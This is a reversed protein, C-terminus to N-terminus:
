HTSTLYKDIKSVLDNRNVKTLIHKAVELADKTYTKLLLDVLDTTDAGEVASEPIDPYGPPGRKLFLKFKKLEKRNLDESNRQQLPELRLHGLWPTQLGRSRLRM